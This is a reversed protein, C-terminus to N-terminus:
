ILRIRGTLLQQMMGQKLAEYKAKKAELASIENDMSSLVSAIAVQEEITPPIMIRVDSLASKSISTVKTGQMLPLLQDHFAFSNMYYGLFRKTYNNNPRLAITHLGSEVQMGEIGIIECAKGCTEDEATDAIIIDGDHLPHSAKSKGIIFPLDDRSADIVSGFKVLVDGYHVNRVIGSDSMMDRSYCNNGMFTFSKGLERVIWPETFGKLRKKGTLLQQMTGQKINKKKDILKDLSSILNDICTLVSVIRSQEEIKYPIAIIKSHLENRNLTPVGSGGSYRKFDLTEFLYKIYLPVCEVFRTVWLTTNHPWYYGSEIYTFHGITGSRGTIVGPAKCMPENHYAGIGNSFVVPIGGRIIQTTPLDFGRQLPAVKDILKIDWDYPIKGIETDKFRTERM